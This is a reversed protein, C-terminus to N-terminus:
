ENDSREISVEELSDLLLKRTVTDLAALLELRERLDRSAGLRIITRQSCTYVGKKSPRVSIKM